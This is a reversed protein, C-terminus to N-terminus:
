REALEAALIRALPHLQYRAPAPSALLSADTLTELADAAEPLSVGFLTAADPTSITAMPWHGLQRFADAATADRPDGSAVLDQWAAELRARVSLPGYCLEDLRHREDALLRALSALPWAPRAALRVGVIYLALPLGGCSAVISSVAAPERLAREPGTMATLLDRADADTMEALGAPSAEPLQPLGRRSTILTACTHSGPILPGVQAADRADDLVLLIRRGALLSRYQAVLETEDRALARRDLGLARLFRAAIAAPAAPDPGTGGLDAYLQGDPYHGAVRHAVHVALESKGIGPFGTIVLVPRAAGAQRGASLEAPRGSGQRGTVAAAAAATGAPRAASAQALRRNRSTVTLPLLM